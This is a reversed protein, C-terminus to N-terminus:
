GLTDMQHKRPGEVSCSAVVPRSPRPPWPVIAPKAGASLYSKATQPALGEDALFAAFCLLTNLFPFSSIFNQVLVTCFKVESSYHHRLVKSLFFVIRDRSLDDALHNAHTDITPFSTFITTPRLLFWTICCITRRSACPTSPRMTSAFMLCRGTPIRRHWLRGGTAGTM